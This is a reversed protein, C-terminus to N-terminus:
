GGFRTECNNCYLTESGMICGALLVEGASMRAQLEPTPDPEGYLIRAVSGSGCSPCPNVIGFRTIPKSETRPREAEQPRGGGFFQSIDFWVEGEIGASDRCTLVDFPRGEHHRLEQRVVAWGFRRVLRHEEAVSGVVFATDPSRGDGGGGDVEALAQLVRAHFEARNDERRYVWYARSWQHLNGDLPSVELLADLRDGVSDLIGDIEMLGEIVDMEAAGVSRIRSCYEEFAERSELARVLDDIASM